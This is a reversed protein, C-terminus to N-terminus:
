SYVTTTTKIWFYNFIIHMNKQAIKEDFIFNLILIYHLFSILKSKQIYNMFWPFNFRQDINELNIFISHYNFFNLQFIDLFYFHHFMLILLYIFCNKLFYKAAAHLYSTCNSYHKIIKCAVRTACWNNPLNYKQNLLGEHSRIILLLVYNFYCCWKRGM